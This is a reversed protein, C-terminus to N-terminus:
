VGNRRQSLDLRVDPVDARLSIASLSGPRFRLRRLRTPATTVSPFQATSTASTALGVKKPPNALTPEDADIVGTTDDGAAQDYDRGNGFPRNINMKLGILLDPPLLTPLAALAQPGTLGGSMLRAKLLDAVRTNTPTQPTATTTPVAPCPVDWSETTVGLRNATTASPLLSPALTTLRAPLTTADRDFPRLVRELESVSFPNNVTSTPLGHATNPGLNLEYPNNTIGSGFGCYSGSVTGGAYIPRGAQDLGVVGVGFPDPPSGFSGADNM